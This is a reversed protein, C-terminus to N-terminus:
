SIFTRVIGTPVIKAGEKIDKRFQQLKINSYVPHYLGSRYFYHYIYGNPNNEKFKHILIGSIIWLVFGLALMISSEYGQIFGVLITLIMPIIGIMAEDMEFIGIMKPRDIFRPFPVKIAEDM